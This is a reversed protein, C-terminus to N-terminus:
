WCGPSTGPFAFSLPCYALQGLERSGAGSGRHSLHLGHRLGHLGQGWVCVGGRGDGPYCGRGSFGVLLAAVMASACAAQDIAGFRSMLAGRAVRSPLVPQGLNMALGVELGVLASAPPSLM